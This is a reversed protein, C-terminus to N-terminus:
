YSERNKLEEYMEVYSNYRFETIDGRACAEKVECGPEHTHSCPNFRCGGIFSDFEDFYFQLNDKDIDPYDLSSFGPTDMIYTNETLFFLESHRTTHRGRKLKKSVSDTRSLKEGCIKNLLSSKGVGSPGMFVTTKKHIKEKLEEIGINQKASVFMIDINSHAYMARLEDKEEETALDAKNFCLIIDVDQSKMSLMMRLILSHIPDPTKMSFIICGLDVNSVVPRIIANERDFIDVINGTLDDESIIDINVYDGVMPKINKKRFIGKARCVYIKDEETYVDYFGGVGKIIRGRIGM